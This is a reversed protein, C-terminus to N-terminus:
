MKLIQIINEVKQCLQGLKEAKKQLNLNTEEEIQKSEEEIQKRILYTQWHVMVKDTLEIEIDKKIQDSIEMLEKINICMLVKSELEDM